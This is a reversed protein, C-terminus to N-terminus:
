LGRLDPNHKYLTRLAQETIWGEEHDQGYKQRMDELAVGQSLYKAFTKCSPCKCGIEAKAQQQDAESVLKCIYAHEIYRVHDEALEVANKIREPKALQM